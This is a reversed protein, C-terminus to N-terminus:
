STMGHNQSRQDSAKGICLTFLFDAVIVTNATGLILQSDRSRDAWFMFFAIGLGTDQGLVDTAQVVDAGRPHIREGEAKVYSATLEVVGLNPGIHGGNESTVEIIEQRIEDALVPLQDEPLAKLDDPGTLRPLIPTKSTESM